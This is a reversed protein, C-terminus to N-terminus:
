PGRHIDTFRRWNRIQYCGDENWSVIDVLRGGHVAFCTILVCQSHYSVTDAVLARNGSGSNIPLPFRDGTLEPRWSPYHFGPKVSHMEPLVVLNVLNKQVRSILLSKWQPVHREWISCCSFDVNAVTVLYCGSEDSFITCTLLSHLIVSRGTMCYWIKAL